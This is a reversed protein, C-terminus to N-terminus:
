LTFNDLAGKFPDQNAIVQSIAYFLAFVSILITMKVLDERFPYVMVILSSLQKLLYNLEFTGIVVLMMIAAFIVTARLKKMSPSTFSLACRYSM